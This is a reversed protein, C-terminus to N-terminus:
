AVAGQQHLSEIQAAEFGLDSLLASTHEGLRPPNLRVGPRQGAVELFKM